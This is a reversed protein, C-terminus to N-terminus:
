FEKHECKYQNINIEDELDLLYKLSELITDSTAKDSVMRMKKSIPHLFRKLSQEIMKQMEDEYESPVYRKEIARELEDHAAKTAKLYMEKILPEVNLTDLWSYFEMTFKGVIEYSLKSNEQRLELNENVISKLDDVQYLTIGEGQSYVVDRPVALDFWYRPFDVRDIIEDTIIPSASATATFLLDYSNIASKLNSFDEIKAGCEDAMAMVNERTRNMFTVDVGHKQLHKATIKSMEGAGIILARKGELDSVESKIKAVAVSAVSVPNKSINTANRVEAACKFAYHMARSIKQNCFGEDFSFKFAEKLQGAIQTEGIVMSDLSSAVSFLHHIAGRDEYIDARGELEELSVLSRLHLLNFISSTAKVVSTCSCFVEIRNCTSILFSEHISENANLRSLCGRREEDSNYALKERIELTSNNHTFSILIYHM